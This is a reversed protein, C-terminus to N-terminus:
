FPRGLVDNYVDIVKSASGNWSVKSMEEQGNRKLTNRLSKHKLVSVAKNAMENTDWFDAKLSNATVESAGSQNSILTPVGLNMSELATIGFPESVSPMVYLDSMNYIKQIEKQDKIWGTFIFKDAIGLEAVQRIMQNNMDGSGVVIFATNPHFDLIKKAMHVFYDPGKQISIRGLYLVISKDKQLGHIEREVYEGFEAANHVVSIKDPSIGYNDIIKKKTFESVAIIQDAKEMGEKEIEYVMPNAGQGGSRDFETAHVHIVLKKGSIEKAAIGVKYTLWDHAHIVDFEEQEAIKAGILGYRYVEESLSDGCRPIKEGLKIKESYEEETIYGQLISNVFYKKHVPSTDEAYVFKLYDAEYENKKPLVFIVEVDQKALGKTLGECAVGLGGSHHPPFEWGFMLVKVKGM